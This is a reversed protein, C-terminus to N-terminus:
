SLKIFEDKIDVGQTAFIQYTSATWGMFPPADYEVNMISGDRADYKEWLCGTKEFQKEVVEMYKKAIRDADEKAGVNLLASYIVYTTEGWMVPYDWQHYFEDDPRYAGAAVGCKLELQKVIKLCEEKNNSIGMAYPYVNVATIIESHKGNILRYDKYMGNDYFYKDMLKKRNEALDKFEKEKQENGIIGFMQSIRMEDLYLWCNLDLHAFEETAMRKTETKFRANFDLGSESMAILDRNIQYQEAETKGYDFVRRDNPQENPNYKGLIDQYTHTQDDCLFANLGIKTMRRKQFFDHEKIISNIYKEIISKDKKFIYLDWVCLPFVPPQTRKYMLGRIDVKNSSNPVYGLTEIFYQMNKINNEAAEPMNSLLLGKNIFFLDWYYFDIFCDFNPSNYPFPVDKENVVITKKWNELIYDLVIKKM